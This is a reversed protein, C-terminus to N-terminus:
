LGSDASKKFGVTLFLPIITLFRLLHGGLDGQDGILSAWIAYAATVAAAIEGAKRRREREDMGINQLNDTFEQRQKTAQEESVVGDKLPAVLTMTKGEEFAGMFGEMWSFPGNNEFTNTQGEQKTKEAENDTQAPTESSLYLHSNAKQYVGNMKLSKQSSVVFPRKNTAFGESTGTCASILLTSLATSLKM